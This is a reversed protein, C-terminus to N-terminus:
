HLETSIESLIRSSVNLRKKCTAEGFPAQPLYCKEKTAKVRRLAKVAPLKIKEIGLGIKRELIKYFSVFDDM